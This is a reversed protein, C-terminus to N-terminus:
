RSGEEIMKQERDWAIADAPQLMTDLLDAAQEKCTDQPHCYTRELFATDAHGLLDATVQKSTGHELLYTAFFTGCRTCTTIKRSDTANM